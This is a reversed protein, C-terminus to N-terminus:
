RRYSWDRSGMLWLRLCSGNNEESGNWRRKVEVEDEGGERAM